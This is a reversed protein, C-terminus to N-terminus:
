ALRTRRVLWPLALLLIAFDAVFGEEPVSVTSKWTGNKTKLYIANTGGMSFASLMGVTQNGFSGNLWGCLLLSSCSAQGGAGSLSYSYATVWKLTTSWTLTGQIQQSGFNASFNYTISNAAASTVTLLAFLVVLLTFKCFGKGKGVSIGSM